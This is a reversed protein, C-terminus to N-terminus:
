PSFWVSAACAPTNYEGFTRDSGGPLDRVPLGAM